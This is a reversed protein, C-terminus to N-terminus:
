PSSTAFTPAVKRFVHSTYCGSIRSAEASLRGGVGMKSKLANFPVETLRVPSAEPYMHYPACAAELDDSTLRYEPCDEVCGALSFAYRNEDLNRISLAATAVDGRPIYQSDAFIVLFIGGVEMADSVRKMANRLDAPSGAFYNAAFFMTAAHAKRIWRVRQGDLMDGVVFQTEVHTDPGFYRAKRDTAAEHVSGASVDLLGYFCLNPVHTCQGMSGGRGGAWEIVATHHEKTAYAAYMLMSSKVWNNYLRVESAISDSDSQSKRTTASATVSTKDYHRSVESQEPPSIWQRLEAYRRHAYYTAGSRSTASVWDGEKEEKGDVNVKATKTMKRASTRRRKKPPM